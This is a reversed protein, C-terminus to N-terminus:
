IYDCISITYIDDNKIIQFPKACGYVLKDNILKECNVKTEHQNIPELTNKYVAHRFIGCNIDNINVIFLIHCHPCKLELDM